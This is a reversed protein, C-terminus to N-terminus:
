ELSEILVIEPSNRRRTRAAARAADDPPPTEPGRRTLYRVTRARGVLRRNLGLEQLPLLGLMYTNRWGMQLLMHNATATSVQALEERIAELRAAEEPGWELGAM